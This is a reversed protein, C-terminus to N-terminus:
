RVVKGLLQWGEVEVEVEEGSALAALIEVAPRHDAAFSWTEDTGDLTMGLLIIVSGGQRASWEQDVGTV